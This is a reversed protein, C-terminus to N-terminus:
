RTSCTYSAASTAAAVDGATGIYRPFQPYQCLPRSLIEKGATDLKQATLTAPATGNTVWQDLATLLDSSDAGPGGSCHDVGPPIYFRTSADATAAGVANRM